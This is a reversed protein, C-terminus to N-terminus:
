ICQLKILHRPNSFGIHKMFMRVNKEGNIQIQQARGQNRIHISHPIDLEDLIRSVQQILDFSSSVYNVRIYPKRYTGRKDFGVGGDTDFLGRLCACRLTIDSYFIADPIRATFTKPGPLMLFRDKFFTGLQKSYLRCTVKTRAFYIRPNIGFLQFCLIRLHETYYLGDRVPDGVIQVELVNKHAYLCGDGLVVGIFECLHPTLPM